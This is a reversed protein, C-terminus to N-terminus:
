SHVGKENGVVCLARERSEKLQRLDASNAEGALGQTSATEEGKRICDAPIEQNEEKYLLVNWPILAILRFDHKCPHKHNTEM